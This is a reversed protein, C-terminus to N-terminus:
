KKQEKHMREYRTWVELTLCNIATSYVRGGANGWADVADWSGHEDLTDKTTGKDEPRWGRQNDFLTKKMAQEWTKWSPGDVQYLALSAYYWYYYDIKEHEWAPVNRACEAAQSRIVRNNVDWKDDGMFLRTMINISDMSPNGLYNQASRLRACDSGPLNYGTKPYGGSEVTVTDLWKAADGYVKHSDFEIGAFKCSKLALVMWGTVSTDNEQPKIGYRWGMGPNQATLIFEAARETNAKLAPDGSITYIEALAMTCIAHNYVFNDEDKNGFCGDNGQCKRLYMVAKRCADKYDGSKHDHGAGAFALLALGTLGIDASGSWGQDGKPDGPRVFQINYTKRANKRTTDESFNTASWFGEFNQHDKLWLLAAEVHPIPEKGGPGDGHGRTPFGGGIGGRGKGGGGGGGIGTATSPGKNPNPSEVNEDPDPNEALSHNPSNTPDEEHTDTQDEIIAKEESPNEVVKEPDPWETQEPPKLPVEPPLPIAEASATIVKAPQNTPLAPVIFWAIVLFLVHAALAVAVWPVSSIPKLDQEPAAVAPPGEVYSEPVAQTHSM